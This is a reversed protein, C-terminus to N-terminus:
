CVEEHCPLSPSYRRRATEVGSTSTVAMKLVECHISHSDFGCSSRSPRRSQQHHLVAAQVVEDTVVAAKGNLSGIGIWSPPSFRAPLSRGRTLHGTRLKLYSTDRVKLVGHISYPDFRCRDVQRSCRVANHEVMSSDIRMLALFSSPSLPGFAGSFRTLNEGGERGMYRRLLRSRCCRM